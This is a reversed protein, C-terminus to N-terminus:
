IRPVQTVTSDHALKKWQATQALMRGVRILCNCVCAPEHVFSSLCYLKHYLTILTRIPPLHYCHSGYVRGVHIVVESALTAVCHVRRPECCAIMKAVFNFWGWFQPGVLQVYAIFALSHHEIRVYWVLQLCVFCTVCM